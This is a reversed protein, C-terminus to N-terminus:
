SVREGLVGKMTYIDEFVGNYVRVFASFSRLSKSTQLAGNGEQLERIITPTVPLAGTAAEMLLCRTRAKIWRRGIDYGIGDGRGGNGKHWPTTPYLEIAATADVSKLECGVKQPRAFSHGKSGELQNM